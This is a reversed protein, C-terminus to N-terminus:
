FWFGTLEFNCGLGNKRFGKTNKYNTESSEENIRM